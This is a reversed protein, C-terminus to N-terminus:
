PRPLVHRILVIRAVYLTTVNHKVVRDTPTPERYILPCPGHYRDFYHSHENHTIYVYFGVVGHHAGYAEGAVTLSHLQLRLRGGVEFGFATILFTSRADDTITDESVYAGVVGAMLMVVLLAAAGQADQRRRMILRPQPPLPANCAM